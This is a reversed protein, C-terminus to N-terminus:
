RCASCRPRPPAPHQTRLQHHHQRHRHRHHSIRKKRRPSCSWRRRERRSSTPPPLRSARRRHRRSRGHRRSWCSFRCRDDCSVWRCRANRFLVVRLTCRPRSHTTHATHGGRTRKIVDQEARSRAACAAAMTVVGSARDGFCPRHLHRACRTARRLNQLAM